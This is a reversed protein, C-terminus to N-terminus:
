AISPVRCRASSRTPSAWRCARASLDGGRVREAAAVLGGIPRAMRPRSPSGSGVAALLLLVGVGFFLMTFAIQYESREGELKEYQAVASQTQEMHALVTPDVFRGVYLFVNGFNDLRVLARVRDDNDSTLIAVDGGRAQQLAWDPPRSSIAARLDPQHPCPCPGLQRVGGSREALPAGGAGRRDAGLRQPISPQPHRRRPQPRGGHRAVDARIAQQHEHLYAEAVALSESLATRVRESFWAQVGFSFLSYSFVAVIITPIVAVLSFLMVMRVHLRSGARGRRREAWVQVLRWAVVAFLPLVLVLNLLLLLADLHAAHRVAAPRTLAAYTAAASLAAALRWRWRSSAPGSAGPRGVAIFARKADSMM